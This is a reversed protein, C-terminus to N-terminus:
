NYTDRKIVILARDDHTQTRGSFRALDEVIAECLATASLMANKSICGALRDQGYFMDPPIANQHAKVAESGTLANQNENLVSDDGINTETIGDTYFVVIDSPALLCTASTFAAEEFAGVLMSDTKLVDIM